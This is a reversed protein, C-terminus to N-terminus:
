RRSSRSERRARCGTCRRPRPPRPPRRRSSRRAAPCGIRSPVRAGRRLRRPCRRRSTPRDAAGVIREERICEKGARHQDGSRRERHGEDGVAGGVGHRGALARQNRRQKAPAHEPPEGASADLEHPLERTSLLDVGDERPCGHTDREREQARAREGPGPEGAGAEHQQRRDREGREGVEMEGAGRERRVAGDDPRAGPDHMPPRKVSGLRPLRAGGVGLVGGSGM